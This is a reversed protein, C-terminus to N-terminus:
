KKSFLSLVFSLVASILLSSTVPVYLTLGQKKIVLDGPLTGVWELYPPVEVGSHIVLGAAVIVFLTTGLFQFV